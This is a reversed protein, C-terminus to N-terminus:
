NGFLKKLGDQLMKRTPDEQQEGDQEQGDQVNEDQQKNFLKDIEGELKKGLAKKAQAQMGKPDLGFRPNEYTGSLLLPLQNWGEEDTLYKSVQEKHDIRATLEPSVRTDMTLDLSGDLGVKGKPYMKIQDSLIKSDVQVKGKVIKFAAEFNQFKIERMDPIKLLGALGNVLGPSVVQGDAVLMEGNGSLKKSLTEWQTGRGDIALDLNMAGLMAGAAKPAFASLLPDMQISKIGIKADYVLGRKGLDVRATNQFSGGALNGDMRSVTLVNKKLEYSALFDNISLGKWVTEGIRINGKAVVPIDFPGLEEVSSEKSAIQPRTVEGGSKGTTKDAAVAAGGGGKLLPDLAFRESTVDALVQVPEEFINGVQLAINAKNDGLRLQLEESKLQDAILQLRGHLSPRQGGTTAQVNDLSVLASKVLTEPKDFGGSLKADLAITGAPDLDEIEKVLSRPLMEMAERLDVGPVKLDLDAQPEAFLNDLSGSLEAVLGNFDLALRALDLRGKQLDFELDHDFAVRAKQLPAEPMAELTLDLDAIELLGKAAVRDPTGVVRTQLNLKLGGLRGPIQDAFYPKFALLDLSQLDLDFEGGPGMLDAEGDLSFKSENVVFELHIPVSGTLTIGNASAQLGKVEFRYPAKENLVQDIFLLEGDLLRVQSVLLSIASADSSAAPESVAKPEQDGAEASEGDKGLMDSFNFQGDAQRVVRIQPRELRVEDIVVKMALLPLLQYKLRVLDTSVFVDQNDVEYIKLSHLEIGSFLSVKIEGLEVKRQLAEEAVPLVTEKVREPTILVKALIVVVIVLLVIVGCVVGLIKMLKNM